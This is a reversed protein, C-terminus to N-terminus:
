DTAEQIIGAAVAALPQVLTGDFPVTAVETFFGNAIFAFVLFDLAAALNTLM